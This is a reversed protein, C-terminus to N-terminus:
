EELANEERFAKKELYSLQNIAENVESLAKSKKSELSSIANSILTKLEESKPTLGTKLVTDSTGSVSNAVTTASSLANNLKTICEDVSATFENRQRILENKKNRYYSSNM